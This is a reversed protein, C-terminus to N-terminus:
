ACRCIIARTVCAGSHCCAQRSGMRGGLALLPGSPGPACTAIDTPPLRALLWGTLAAPHASGRPAAGLGALLGALLLGALLWGAALWGAALWCCGALLWCAGAPCTWAQAGPGGAV